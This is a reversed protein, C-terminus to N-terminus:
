EAHGRGELLENLEDVVRQAGRRSIRNAQIGTTNVSTGDVKDVHGRDGISWWTWRRLSFGEVEVWPIFYNRFMNRVKIGDARPYVGAPAGRVLLFGAFTLTFVSETLQALPPPNPHGFFIVSSMAFVFAGAIVVNGYLQIKTQYCRKVL